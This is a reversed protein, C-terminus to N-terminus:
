KKRADLIKKTSVHNTNKCSERKVSPKKQGRPHKRIASLKINSALQILLPLLQSMPMYRFVIWEEDPIAIMMGRYTSSIENAMYYGSVENTVVEPGHVASLAAKVVSLITYSVLGICFGFLAAKPYGLTNIESNFHETLEQFATEIRWRGRYIKAIKKGNADKKPLNSIIAMEKDGDRTEVKLEIRIRRFKHEKGSEDVVLIWQEYVKGTDTRGVYKEKGLPTWPLKKHERIAFFGHRSDIGCIFGTTCFNRDAIWADKPKVTLLVDKLLSREQAHGDECPFVDIPLRLAPDYVVLSKGPLPGAAITRLEFIRHESKEICNGDLLKLLYGPLLSPKSGGLQEIIPAAQGACYRVLEASTNTEIGNLKNYVSTLSVGVNYDLGQYTAGVSPQVGLVVQSMIDFVSSFLLNETYQEVATIDFWKNLIEPNLTREMLGRVMVSIPSKDVFREFISNLM